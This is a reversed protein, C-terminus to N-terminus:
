VKPLCGRANIPSNKMNMAMMDTALMTGIIPRGMAMVTSGAAVSPRIAAVRSAVCPFNGMGSIKSVPRRASLRLARAMSAKPAMYAAPKMHAM